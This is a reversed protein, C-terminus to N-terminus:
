YLKYLAIHNDMAKEIPNFRVIGQNVSSTFVMM